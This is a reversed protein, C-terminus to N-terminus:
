SMRQRGNITSHIGSKRLRKSLCTTVRIFPMAIGGENEVFSETDFNWYNQWHQTSYLPNVNNWFRPNIVPFFVYDYDMPNVATDKAYALRTASDTGIVRSGGLDLESM